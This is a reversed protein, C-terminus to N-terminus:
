LGALAPAEDRHVVFDAFEGQCRPWTPLLIEICCVYTDRLATSHVCAGAGM